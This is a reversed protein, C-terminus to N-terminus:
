EEEKDEEKCFGNNINKKESAFQFCLFLAHCKKLKRTTAATLQTPCWVVSKFLLLLLLL